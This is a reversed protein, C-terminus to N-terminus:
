RNIFNGQDEEIPNCVHSGCLALIFFHFWVQCSADISPRKCLIRMKGSRVEFYAQGPLKTKSQSIQYFLRGKWFQQVLYFWSQCRADISPDKTQGLQVVFMVTMPLERKQNPSKFFIKEELVM